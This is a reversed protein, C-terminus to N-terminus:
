GGEKIHPDKYVLNEKNLIMMIFKVSIELDSIRDEYDM